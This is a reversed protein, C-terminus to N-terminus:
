FSIKEMEVFKGNGACVFVCVKTLELWTKGGPHTDIFDTLDYLKDHVRWYVFADDDARKGELWQWGGNIFNNRYKPYKRIVSNNQFYDLTTM